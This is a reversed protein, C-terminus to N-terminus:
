RGRQPSEFEDLPLLYRSEAVQWRDDSVQWVDKSPYRYRRETSVSAGRGHRPVDQKKNTKKVLQLNPMGVASALM